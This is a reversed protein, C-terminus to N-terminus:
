APIFPQHEAAILARQAEPTGLLYELTKGHRYYLPPDSEVIFGVGGHVLICDKGADRAVAGARLKAMAAARHADEGQDLAWAAAYTLWRVEAVQMALNALRHQIAQFSGIPRGFQERQKAYAVALDLCAAAVGLARAAVAVKAGDLTPQLLEATPRPEGVAAAAPLQLGACDLTVLREGSLVPQPTVRVGAVDRPALLLASQGASGALEAILLVGDAGPWGGVHSVRGEVRYGGDDSHAVLPPSDAEGRDLPWAAALTRTGKALAPLWEQQQAASGWRALLRGALVVSSLHPSVFLARGAEEYLVCTELWGGGAGGQAPPLGFGLVGLRGLQQYVAPLYGHETTEAQRVASTPYERQFFDRLTRRLIEQARNLSFDM